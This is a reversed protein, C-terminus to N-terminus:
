GFDVTQLQNGTVFSIRPAKKMEETINSKKPLVPKRRANGIDFNIIGQPNNRISCLTVKLKPDILRLMNYSSGGCVIFNTKPVFKGCYLKSQINDPVINEILKCSAYDWLQINTKDRWSCTLIEKGPKDFSIGEGCMHVGEFHKTAYPQRDDWCMVHDDWGGSVFEHSSLPHFACAFIRSTHGDRKTTSKYFTRELTQTEENYM